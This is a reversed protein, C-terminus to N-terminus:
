FPNQLFNPAVLDSGQPPDFATFFNEGFGGPQSIFDLFTDQTPETRNSNFLNRQFTLASDIQPGIFKSLGAVFPDAFSSFSNDRQQISGMQPVGSASLFGLDVFSKYLAQARADGFQAIFTPDQLFQQFIGQITQYAQFAEGGSLPGSGQQLFDRETSFQSPQDFAGRLQSGANFFPEQSQLVQQSPANLGGLFDFSLDQFPTIRLQNELSVNPDIQGEVDGIFNGGTGDGLEGLDIPQGDSTWAASGDPMIWAQSEADWAALPDVLDPRIPDTLGAGGAGTNVWSGSSNNWDNGEPDTWVNTEKNYGWGDGESAGPPRDAPRGDDTGPDTGPASFSWVPEEQSSFDSISWYNKLANEAQEQTWTFGYLSQTSVIDNVAQDLLKGGYFDSLAKNYLALTDIEASGVLGALNTTSWTQLIITREEETLHFAEQFIGNFASSWFGSQARSFWEFWEKTETDGVIHAM